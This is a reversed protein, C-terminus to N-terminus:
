KKTAMHRYSVTYSQDLVYQMPHAISTPLHQPQSQKDNIDRNNKNKREYCFAREPVDRYNPCCGLPIESTAYGFHVGNPGTLHM